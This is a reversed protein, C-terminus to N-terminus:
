IRELIFATHLCCLGINTAFFSQCFLLWLCTILPCFGQFFLILLAYIPIQHSVTMISLTSFSLWVNRRVIYRKRCEIYVDFILVCVDIYRCVYVSQSM